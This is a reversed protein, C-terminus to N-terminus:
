AESLSLLEQIDAEEGEMSQGWRKVVEKVTSLKEGRLKLGQEVRQRISDAGNMCIDLMMYDLQQLTLLGGELRKIYMEEEVEETGEWKLAEERLVKDTEVLRALYECHLEVLRDVKEHDNEVFKCLLREKM